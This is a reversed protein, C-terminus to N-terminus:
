MWGCRKHVKRTRVAERVKWWGMLAKFLPLSLSSLHTKDGKHCHALYQVVKNMTRTLSVLAFASHYNSSFRSQCQSERIQQLHIQTQRPDVRLNLNAFLWGDWWSRWGNMWQVREWLEECPLKARAWCCAMHIGHSWPQPFMNWFTDEGLYKNISDIFADFNSTSLNDRM